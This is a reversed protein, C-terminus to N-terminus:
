GQFPVPFHVKFTSGSNGTDITIKANHNAAISYCTPLGLGTGTQKTTFFATGIRDLHEKPIGSGQDAVALVVRGQEVLTSITLKGGPAMAELGNRVLNLLLQRIEKPDIRIEPNESLSLAIENGRLMAEAEILPLLSTVAQNLSSQAMETPKSRAFALFETIIDNARDLEEIMLNLQSKLAFLEPKRLMLQLYGRVTTMPNRVEHGISAAIEAVLNLRDLQAIEAQLEKLLTIDHSVSSVGVSEGQENKIVSLHLDANFLRGDKRRRIAETQVAQGARLQEHYPLPESDGPLLTSIPKGVIETESYGYMREAAQNWTRVIGGLDTSYIAVDSYRVLAEYHQLEDRHRKEETIDELQGICLVRDEETSVLASAIIRMRIIKGSSNVYRKEVEYSRIQGTALAQFLDVSLHMDEPLTFFLYHRGVLQVQDYGLFTSLASNVYLISGDTDLLMMSTTTFESILVFSDVIESIRKDPVAAPQGVSQQQGSSARPAGETRTIISLLYVQDGVTLRRSQVEVPIPRRQKDQHVTAFRIGHKQAVDMQRHIDTRSEPSRLDAITLSLLEDRSYGYLEGATANADVIKGDLFSILLIADDSRDMSQGFRGDETLM